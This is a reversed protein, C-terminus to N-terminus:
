QKELFRRSGKEIRKRIRGAELSDSATNLIYDRVFQREQAGGFPNNEGAETEGVVSGLLKWSDQLQLTLQQCTTLTRPRFTNYGLVLSVMDKGSAGTIEGFAKMLPFSGSGPDALLRTENLQKVAQSFRQQRQQVQRSLEVQMSSDVDAFLNGQYRTTSPEAPRTAVPKGLVSGGMNSKAWVSNTGLGGGPGISGGLRSRGFSSAGFASMGGSFAGGNDAGPVPSSKPALGFHEFIRQKQAEWETTVNKIVFSDFDRATRRM